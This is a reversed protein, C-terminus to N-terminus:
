TAAASVTARASPGAGPRCRNHRELHATSAVKHLSGPSSAARATRMVTVTVLRDAGLFTTSVTKDAVPVNCGTAPNNDTDFLVQYTYNTAGGDWAPHAVGVVSLCFVLTLELLRLPAIARTHGSARPM